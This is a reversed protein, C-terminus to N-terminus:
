SVQGNREADEQKGPQVVCAYGYGGTEKSKYMRETYVDKRYKKHKRQRWRMRRGNVKETAEIWSCGEGRYHHLPVVPM